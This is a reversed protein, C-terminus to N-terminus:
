HLPLPIRAFGWSGNGATKLAEQGRAARSVTALAARRPSIPGWRRPIRPVDALVGQRPTRVTIIPAKM